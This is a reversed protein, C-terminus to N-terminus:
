PAIISYMGPSERSETFGFVQFHTTMPKKLFGGLLAEEMWPQSGRPNGQRVPLKTKKELHSVRHFGGELYLHATTNVQGAFKAV